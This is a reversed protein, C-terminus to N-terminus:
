LRLAGAGRHRCSISCPSRRPSSTSTIPENGTVTAVGVVSSPPCLNAEFEVLARLQSRQMADGREPQRGSGASPQLEPGQAARGTPAAGDPEVGADNDASIAALGGATAPTGDENFPSLEYDQFGFHTPEGNISIPQVSSVSSGGGGEVSAEGHLSTVTGPPEEVKVKITVSIQEYPNLVGAFTCTLSAFSCQVQSRNQFPGAIGTAILGPPPKYRIIVHEGSGNSTKDGLNSAVVTILGEEGPTLNTPVVESNIHWWPAEAHAAPAHALATALLSALVALLLRLRTCIARARSSPWNGRARSEIAPAEDSDGESPGARHSAHRAAERRKTSATASAHRHKAPM